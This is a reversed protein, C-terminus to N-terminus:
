PSIDEFLVPIDKQFRRLVSVMLERLQPSTGPALSRKLIRRWDHISTSIVVETAVSNPLVLQAEGFSAGREILENYVSGIYFCAEEWAQYRPAVGGVVHQYLGIKADQWAQRYEHPIVVQLGGTPVIPRVHGPCGQATKADTVVRIAISQYELVSYEAAVAKRAFNRDAERQNKGGTNYAAMGATAIMRLMQAGNPPTIYEWYQEIIKM